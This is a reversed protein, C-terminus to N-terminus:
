FIYNARLIFNVSRQPTRYAYTTANAIRIGPDFYNENLANNVILQLGFGSFIRNCGISANVIGVAPFLGPNDPVTTGIGVPRAGIYNYRIQLQIQKLITASFGLNFRHSAIDAVRKEVHTFKGEADLAKEYPSTYTYNAWTSFGPWKANLTVQLGQVSLEGIPQYQQTKNGILLGDRVSAIGEYSAIYGVINAEITKSIEYNLNLEYNKAIEPSITPNPARVATTSYKKWVSANQFARAYIAKIVFGKYNVILALRPNFQTGYGGTARIQNYDYRGGLNLKIHSNILLETQLYAGIDFVQFDNGGPVLDASAIGSEIASITDNTSQRYDGQIVSSRAEIGTIINIWSNPILTIKTENRFQYSISSSYFAAWYAAQKNILSEPGLRKNSYNYVEITKSEDDLESVRYQSLNYFSLNSAIDKEYMLYISGQAPVWVSGNDSGARKNDHYYNATGNISRWTQYGITFDAIQIKGLFFIHDSINSYAIQKGNLTGEIAKKDFARAQAVGVQTPIVAVTDGKENRNITFYTNFNPNTNANRAFKAATKSNVSLSTVYDVKDYDAPDYNFEPYGSLDM